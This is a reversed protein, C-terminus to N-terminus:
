RRLRLELGEGVERAIAALELLVSLEERDLGHSRVLSDLLYGHRGNCHAWAVHGCVLFIRGAVVFLERRDAGIRVVLEGSRESQLTTRVISEISQV